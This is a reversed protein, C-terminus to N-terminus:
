HDASIRPEGASSALAVPHNVKAFTSERKGKAKLELWTLDGLDRGLVLGFEEFQRDVIGRRERRRRLDLRRDRDLDAPFM